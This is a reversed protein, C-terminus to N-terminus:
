LLIGAMAMLRGNDIITNLYRTNVAIEPKLFYIKRCCVGIFTVWYLFDSM